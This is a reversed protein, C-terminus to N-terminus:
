FSVHIIDNRILLLKLNHQDIALKAKVEKAGDHIQRLYSLSEFIEFTNILRM